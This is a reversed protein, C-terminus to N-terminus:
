SAKRARIMMEVQRAIQDSARQREEVVYAILEQKVDEPLGSDIIDRIQPDDDEGLLRGGAARLAVEAPDGAAAAVRLVNSVTAGMAGSIWKYWTGRAVGADAALQKVTKGTRRPLAELYAGWAGGPHADGM